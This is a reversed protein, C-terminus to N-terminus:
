PAKMKDYVTCHILLLLTQMKVIWIFKLTQTQEVRLAITINRKVPTSTLIVLSPKNGSM